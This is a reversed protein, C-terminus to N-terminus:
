PEPVPLEVPAPIETPQPSPTATVTVPPMLAPPVTPVASPGRTPTITPTPGPTPSATPTPEAQPTPTVAPELGPTTGAIDAITWREGPAIPVYYRQWQERLRGPGGGGLPMQPAWLAFLLFGFAAAAASGLVRRPWTPSAARWWLLALRRALIYLSYGLGLLPLSVLLVQGGYGAASLYREADVADRAHALHQAIADFGTALMRPLARLVIFLLFLLLPVTIVVYTAFFAKGWWKLEPLKRGEGALGGPVLSRVFAAMQSFFDPVGSIDVLTWYGDLRIFPMMQHLIEYDILVIGLLLFEAGTAAYAAMLALAVILHFYVGGLDTRVRSWRSLRYNDSVDTYFAPYVLYLGVGMGGLKGKGYKLAAAHGFEHIAAAAIILALLIGFLGPTYLADRLSAGVGHVTFLWGQTLFTAIAVGLVVPPLFLYQFVRAIPEIVHPPIVRTKLNLALVSRAAAARQQVQDRVEPPLEVVGMTMLNLILERVNEVTVDRKVDDSALAAIEELDRNGDAHEAIRYLLWPVQTYQGIGEVEILYPPDKFASETMEGRLQATAVRRPRDPITVAIPQQGPESTSKREEVRRPPHAQSDRVAREGAAM